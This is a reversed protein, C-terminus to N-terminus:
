SLHFRSLLNQFRPDSRLSDFKPDVKLRVIGVDHQEFGTELWQMAKDRDGLAAYLLAFRYPAVYKHAASNRNASELMTRRMGQYGEAKYIKSVRDVMEQPSGQLRMIKIQEAMAADFNGQAEYTWVLYLHAAFYNQDMELTQNLAAIAQDYRRADYLLYGTVSSIILSLPDVERAKKIEEIAEDKRGMATLFEAFWQHATADRPAAELIQRFKKEAQPWDRDFEWASAALVADASSLTSDLSLAKKAAEQAKPYGQNSPILMWDALVQYSEALGAYAPAYNPDIRIAQEFSKLGAFLGEPTRKNWYFRGKLYAEYAQPDVTATKGGDEAKGADLGLPLAHTVLRAVDHQVVLIDAINTEYNEAWLPSQDRTRILRVAIRVRGNARRISGELLYDVGLERSIQEVTKHNGRYQMATTRAIVGLQNPHFQTLESILEETMGEAFYQQSQEASLDEFPMVLLMFRGAPPKASSALRPRFSYVGFIAMLLLTVSLAGLAIRGVRTGSFGRAGTPNQAPAATATDATAMGATVLVGPANVGQSHRNGAQAHRNDERGDATRAEDAAVPAIFCYGRRPITQIFVPNDASDGLAQRLKNLATNLNADFDVFTDAPWVRQRLEERTVVKGAREVLHTLIQFPKEQLKIRAGNKRVEGRQADIEFAGFRLLPSNEPEADNVRETKLPEFPYASM